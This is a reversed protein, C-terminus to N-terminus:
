VDQSEAVNYKAKLREITLSILSGVTRAKSIEAMAMELGLNRRLWNRVEIAMLSDITLSLENDSVQSGPQHQTICAAFEGALVVETESLLLISPDREIQNILERLKSNMASEAQVSLSELNSYSRFRADQHWLQSGGLELVPKTHGLGTVLPASWQPQGEDPNFQCSQQICRHLAGLVEAESLMYVGNAEFYQVLKPDRSVVGVDAVAGLALVSAPLGCQRRYQAFADLFTNAAAYNAQGMNGCIGATSSFLVFFDLAQTSVSHHLNWAGQVKPSLSAVWKEFSM